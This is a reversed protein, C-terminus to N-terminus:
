FRELTKAQGEELCQSTVAASFLLWATVTSKEETRKGPEDWWINWERGRRRKWYTGEELFNWKSQGEGLGGGAQFPSLLIPSWPSSPFSM